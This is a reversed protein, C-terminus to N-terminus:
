VTILLNNTNLLKMLAEKKVKESFYIKEIDSRQSNMIRISEKLGRYNKEENIILIFDEHTIENNILAESIKSEVSNLKSRALMVIKNHKKNKNQMIKLLRKVIGTSTSFAISVSASAIGVPTVIVTEFSAIYITGTRATLDILSKDFYDSSAIYKSLKKSM